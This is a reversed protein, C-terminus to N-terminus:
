LLTRPRRFHLRAVVKGDGHFSIEEGKDDCLQINVTAITTASIPIYYPQQFSWYEQSRDQGKAPLVGRLPVKADGVFQYKIIDTYVYISNLSPILHLEDTLKVYENVSDLIKKITPNLCVVLIKADMGVTTLTLHRTIPDYSYSFDLEEKSTRHSGNLKVQIRHNLIKILDELSAYFGPPIRLYIWSDSASDLSKQKYAIDMEQKLTDTYEKRDDSGEQLSVILNRNPKTLHFAFLIHADTEMNFWSHPYQLDILAVEWDGELSLPTPLSTTFNGPRNDPSVKMSSNSPLTIQFEQDTIM